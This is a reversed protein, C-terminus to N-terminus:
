LQSGYKEVLLRLFRPGLDQAIGEEGEPRYFRDREPGRGLYGIRWKTRGERPFVYLYRGKRHVYVHLDEAGADFNTFQQGSIGTSFSRESERMDEASRYLEAYVSLIVPGDEGPFRVRYKCQSGEKKATLRATLGLREELEAPAIWLCSDLLTLDDWRSPYDAGSQRRITAWDISAAEDPDGIVVRPLSIGPKEQSRDPSGGIAGARGGGEEARAPERTAEAPASRREGGDPGPLGPHEQRILALQRRAHEHSPDTKLAMEYFTAAALPVGKVMSIDGYKSTVDASNGVMMQLSVVLEAADLEGAAIYEDALALMGREDAKVEGGASVFLMPLEARAAELGKEAILTRVRESLPSEAAAPAGLVLVLLLAVALCVGRSPLTPIGSREEGAPVGPDMGGGPIESRGNARM